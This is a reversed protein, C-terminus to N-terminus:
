NQLLEPLVSSHVSGMNGYYCAWSYQPFSFIISQQIENMIQQAKWDFIKVCHINMNYFFTNFTCPINTNYIVYETWMQNIEVEWDYSWKSSLEKNVTAQWSICDKWVSKICMGLSVFQVSNKVVAPGNYLM